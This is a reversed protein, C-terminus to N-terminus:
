EHRLSLLPDIRTARRAPIYCALLAVAIMVSSVVAFTLPDTGSVKFLLTTMLRTAWVAILLGGTLGLLALTMGQRIVAWVIAGEQAGLARRIGIEKTRETVAFSMVGYIGVAALVLGLGAFVGVLLLTFRPSTAAEAVKQELPYIKDLPVNPDLAWIRERIAPVLSLPNGAARVLLSTGPVPLQSFPLYVWPRSATGAEPTTDAAVGVILIRRGKWAPSDMRRGIPESTPFFTDVFTQNVIAVPAGDARDQDNFTRGSVLPIGLTKFYDVSIPRLPIRPLENEPLSQGEIQFSFRFSQAEM